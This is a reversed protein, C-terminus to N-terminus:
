ADSLGDATAQDIYADILDEQVLDKWEQTAEESWASMHTTNPFDILTTCQEDTVANFEEMGVGTNLEERVEDVIARLDGPLGNYVDANMWLAFTTYAGVG